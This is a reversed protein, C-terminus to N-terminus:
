AGSGGLVGRLAPSLYITELDGLDGMQEGIMQIQDSASAQTDIFVVWRERIRALGGGEGGMPGRRVEAGLREAVEALEDLLSHFDVTM